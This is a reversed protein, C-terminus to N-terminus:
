KPSPLNINNNDKLIVFCLFSAYKLKLFLLYASYTLHKKVEIETILEVLQKRLLYNYVITMLFVNDGFCHNM